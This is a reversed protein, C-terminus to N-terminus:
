NGSTTKECSDFCAALLLSTYHIQSQDGHVEKKINM